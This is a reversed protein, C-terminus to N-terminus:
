SNDELLNKVYWYLMVIFIGNLKFNNNINKITNLIKNYSDMIDINNFMFVNKEFLTDKKM